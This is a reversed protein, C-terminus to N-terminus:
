YSKPRVAEIAPQANEDWVEWGVIEFTPVLITTKHIKHLYSDAGLAVVPVRGPYKDRDRRWARMLKRIANVGGTSGTSFKYLTGKADKLAAILQYSWPDKGSPWEREDLDGLTERLIAGATGIWERIRTDVPKGDTWRVYGDQISLPAFRMITGRELFAKDFGELWQGDKFRLPAADDTDSGINADLAELNKPKAITLETSM